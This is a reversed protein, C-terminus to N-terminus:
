HLRKLAAICKALSPCGQAAKEPNWRTEAFETLHATYGKGIVSTTGARPVMEERVVRRRSHRSINVLTQRPHAIGEVDRPIRVLPVALYDAIGKRDAMLWAELSRVPIRFCMHAAVPDLLRTKLEPACRADHDLDRLIFWAAYAAAANYGALRQDLRAKGRAIYAASVEHRALRCLRAAVVQDHPGEVALSLWAM